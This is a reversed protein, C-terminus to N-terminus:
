LFGAGAHNDFADADRIYQLVTTPNRHRTVEMIKDLRARHAAASTVFGARLSHGSYNTPDLGIRAAYKKVLRPVEGHDLPRGSPTGGGCFTQFLYGDRIGATDLWAHLRTIPRITRGDPVAVFQGRGDQDTKSRQIRLIMRDERLIDIDTVALGCLESRRLAASFGLALMAADRCGFRGIPCKDLMAKVEHERLAKVRRPASGCLRALGGFVDSVQTAAAPSDRRVEAYRRNLASRYIKLTSLSLPRGTAKSPQLALRTFFDVIDESCAREPDIGHADCYKVFRQWARAYARRTNESRAATRLKEAVNNSSSLLSTAKGNGEVDAVRSPQQGVQRDSTTQFGERARDDTEQLARTM